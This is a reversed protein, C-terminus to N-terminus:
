AHGLKSPISAIQIGNALGSAVRVGRRAELACVCVAAVCSWQATHDESAFLMGSLNHGVVDGFPVNDM